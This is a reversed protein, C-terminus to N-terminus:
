KMVIRTIDYESSRIDLTMLCCCLHGDLVCCHLDLSMVISCFIGLHLVSDPSSVCGCVSMICRSSRKCITVTTVWM